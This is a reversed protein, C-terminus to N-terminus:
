CRQPLDLVQTRKSLHEQPPGASELFPTSAQPQGHQGYGHDDDMMALSLVPRIPNLSTSGTYAPLFLYRKSFCMVANTQNAVLLTSPLMAAPGATCSLRTSCHM